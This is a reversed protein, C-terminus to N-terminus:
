SSWEQTGAEAAALCSLTSPLHEVGTQQSEGLRSLLACASNCCRCRCSATSLTCLLPLTAATAGLCAGGGGVQICSRKWTFARWLSRHM